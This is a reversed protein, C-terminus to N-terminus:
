PIEKSLCSEARLHRGDAQWTGQVWWLGLDMGFAIEGVEALFEDEIQGVVGCAERQEKERQLEEAFPLGRSLVSTELFGLTTGSQLSASSASFKLEM